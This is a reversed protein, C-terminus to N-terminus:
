RQLELVDGPLLVPNDRGHLLNRANVTVREGQRTIVVAKPDWLGRYEAVLLADALTMGEHWPVVNKAVDGRVFVVPTQQAAQQQQGAMFASQSQLQATKKSVCGALIVTALVLFHPISNVAILL